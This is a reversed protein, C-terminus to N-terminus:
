DERSSCRCSATLTWQRSQDAKTFAHMLTRVTNTEIYALPQDPDFQGFDRGSWGSLLALAGDYGGNRDVSM